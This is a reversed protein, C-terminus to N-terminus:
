TAQGQAFCTLAVAVVRVFVCEYCREVFNVNSTSDPRLLFIISAACVHMAHFFHLANSQTLVGSRAGAAACGSLYRTLGANNMRLQCFGMCTTYLQM